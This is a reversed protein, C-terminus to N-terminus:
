FTPTSGNLTPCICALGGIRLVGVLLLVSGLIVKLSAPKTGVNLPVRHRCDGLGRSKRLVDSLLRGVLGVPFRNM